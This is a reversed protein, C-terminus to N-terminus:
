SRGCVSIPVQKWLVRRRGFLLALHSLPRCIFSFSVRSMESTERAIYNTKQERPFHYAPLQAVDPKIGASASPSYQRRWTEDPTQRSPSSSSPWSRSDQFQNNSSPPSFPSNSAVAEPASQQMSQYQSEPPPYQQPQHSPHPSYPPVYPYRSYRQNHQSPPYSFEDNYYTHPHTDPPTHGASEPESSSYRQQSHEPLSQQQNGVPPISHDLTTQKGEFHQPHRNDVSNSTEQASFSDDEIDSNYVPLDPLTYGFGDDTTDGSETEETKRFRNHYNWGKNKGRGRAEWTTKTRRDALYDTEDLMDQLKELTKMPNSKEDRTRENAAWRSETDSESPDAAPDDGEGGGSNGDGNYWASISTTASTRSPRNYNTSRASVQWTCSIMVITIRNTKM